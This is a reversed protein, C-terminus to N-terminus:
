PITFSVKESPLGAWKSNKPTVWTKYSGATMPKAPRYTTANSVLVSTAASSGRQFYLRYSTASSAPTWVFLPQKTDQAGPVPATMTTVGAGTMTYLSLTTWGTWSAATVPNLSRLLLSSTGPGVNNIALVGPGTIAASAKSRYSAQITPSQPSPVVTLRLDGGAVTSGLPPTQVITEGQNVEGLVTVSLDGATANHHSPVDRFFRVQASGAARDALVPDTGALQDIDGMTFERVHHVEAGLSLKQVDSHADDGGGMSTVVALPTVGGANYAADVTIVSSGRKLSQALQVSGGSRYNITATLSKPQINIASIDAYYRNDSSSGSPTRAPGLIVTGGFAMPRDTITPSWSAFRHEGSCYIVHVQPWKRSSPDKRYIRIFNATGKSVGNISVSCAPRFFNTQNVTEVITVGDNFVSKVIEPGLPLVSPDAPCNNFVAGEDWPPAYSPWQVTFLLRRRKISAADGLRVVAIFGDNELCPDNRSANFLWVENPLPAAYTTEPSPLTVAKLRGDNGDVLYLTSTAPVYAKPIGTVGALRKFPGGLRGIVPASTSGDGLIFTDEHYRVAGDYAYTGLPTWTVGKDKSHEAYRIVPVGPASVTGIPVGGQGNMPSVGGNKVIVADSTTDVIAGNFQPSVQPSILAMAGSGTNYRWIGSLSGWSSILLILDNGDATISSPDWSWAFVPGSLLGGNAGQDTFEFIGRNSGLWHRGDATTAMSTFTEPPVVGTFSVPVASSPSELPKLRWLKWRESKQVVYVAEGTQHVILNAGEAPVESVTVSSLPYREPVEQWVSSSFSGAGTTHTSVFGLAMMLM